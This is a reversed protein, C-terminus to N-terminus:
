WLGLVGMTIIGRRRELAPIRKDTLAQYPLEGIYYYLWAVGRMVPGSGRAPAVKKIPKM